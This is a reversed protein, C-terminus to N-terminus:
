RVLPDAGSLLSFFVLRGNPSVIPDTKLLKQLNTVILRDKFGYTDVYLGAFGERRVTAIKQDAMPNAVKKNWEEIERGRMAGYSWRLKTSHLYGRFLQYDTLREVAPQEPFSVEPLQYIMSGEPVASEIQKVFVRDSDFDAKISAYDPISQPTTQDFAGILVLVIIAIPYVLRRRSESFLNQSLKELGIGLALLSFGAIFVSIRNYSRIMRFFILNFMAGFGGMAGVLLAIIMFLALADLITHQAGGTLRRLARWFLLFLGITPIVGLVAIGNENV